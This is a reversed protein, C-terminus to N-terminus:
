FVGNCKGNQSTSTGDHETQTHKQLETFSRWEWGSFPTGEVLFSMGMQARVGNFLVRLELNTRARALLGCSPEAKRKKTPVSTGKSIRQELRIARNQNGRNPNGNPHPEFNFLLVAPRPGHKWKGIPSAGNQFEPKKFEGYNNTTM